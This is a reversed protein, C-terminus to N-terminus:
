AVNQTCREVPGIWVEFVSTGGDLRRSEAQGRFTQGISRSTSIM